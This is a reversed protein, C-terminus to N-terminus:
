LWPPRLFMCMSATAQARWIASIPAPSIRSVLMSRSPVRMPKSRSSVRATASPTGTGTDGRAADAAQVVQGVAHLLAPRIGHQGGADEVVAVVRHGLGLRHHRRPTDRHAQSKALLHFGRKAAPSM